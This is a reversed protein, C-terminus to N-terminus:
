FYLLVSTGQNEKSFVRIMGRHLKMVQRSFSLGIGSGNEKTTFFPMFIFDRVNFPIGSGNDTVEVVSREDEIYALLQIRSEPVNELAQVSNKIINILVQEVLKRDMSIELDGPTVEQTIEVSAPVLTSKLLPVLSHFLDAISIRKLDPRPIESLVKYDEIFRLLGQTRNNIAKLGERLDTVIDGTDDENSFGADLRRDLGSSVLKIPSLSNVIEHNLIKMLKQWAESENEELETKIDDIAVLNITHEGQRFRSLNLSFPVKENGLDLRTLQKKGPELSRLIGPLDPSINSLSDFHSIYPTKLLKKATDNFLTITGSEDWAILATNVHRIVHEFYQHETEKELKMTKFEQIIRNFEDYIPRFPFKRIKNFQITNDHFRFSQLFLLLNKNTINVYQILVIIGSLWLVAIGITTFTYGTKGAVLFFLASAVAIWGAYIFVLINFRGSRM